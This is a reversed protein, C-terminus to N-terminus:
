IIVTEGEAVAALVERYEKSVARNESLDRVAESFGADCLEEAVQAAQGLPLEHIWRPEAAYMGAVLAPTKRAAKEIATARIKHQATVQFHSTLALQNFDIVM